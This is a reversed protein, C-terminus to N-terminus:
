RMLSQHESTHEESREAYKKASEQANEFSRELAAYRVPDPRGSENIQRIESLTRSVEAQSQEYFDNAIDIDIKLSHVAQVKSILTLFIEGYRTTLEGVLQTTEPESVLQVKASTSLFDKLGDGLNDKVPHLQPLSLDSSCVDSSWDSIRM